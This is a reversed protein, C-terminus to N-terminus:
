STWISRVLQTWSGLQLGVRTSRQLVRGAEKRLSKLPTGVTCTPSNHIMKLCPISWRLACKKRKKPGLRCVDLTGLM